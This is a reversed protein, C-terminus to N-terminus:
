RWSFSVDDLWASGTLRRAEVVVQAYAAARPPRSVVRARQWRDRAPVSTWKLGVPRGAADFWAIAVRLSADASAADEFHKLAVEFKQQNMSAVGLNNSRIAGAAAAVPTPAQPRAGLRPDLLAIVSVVVLGRVFAHSM